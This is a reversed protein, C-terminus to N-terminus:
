VAPIPMRLSHGSTKGHPESSRAEVRTETAALLWPAGPKEHRVLRLVLAVLCGLVIAFPFVYRLLPVGALFILVTGIAFIAGVIEGGVRLKSANIQPRPSGNEM